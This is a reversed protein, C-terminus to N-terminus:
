ENTYIAGFSSLSSRQLLLDAPHFLSPRLLARCLPYLHFTATRIHAFINVDFNLVEAEICVLTYIRGDENRVSRDAHDM